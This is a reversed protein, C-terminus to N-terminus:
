TSCSYRRTQCSTRRPSNSQTLLAAKSPIPAVPAPRSRLARAHLALTASRCSKPSGCSESSNRSRYTKNRQFACRRTVPLARGTYITKASCRGRRAKQQTGDCRLYSANRSVASVAHGTWGSKTSAYERMLIPCLLGSRADNSRSQAEWNGSHACFKLVEGLPHSVASSSCHSTLPNRKSHRLAPPYPRFNNSFIAAFSSFLRVSLSPPVSPRVSVSAIRKPNKTKNKIKPTPDTNRWGM